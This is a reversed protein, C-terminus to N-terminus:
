EAYFLLWHSALVSRVGLEFKLNGISEKIFIAILENCFEILGKRDIPFCDINEVEAEEVKM